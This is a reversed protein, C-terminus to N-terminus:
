PNWTKRQIIDRITRKSVGYQRALQYAGNRFPIYSSRIDCVDDPSLKAKPNRSGARQGRWRHLRGRDKCDRSNEAASGWRLHGPNVCPPNDCGHLAMMREPVIGTAIAISLRHALVFNPGIRYRGYGLRSRGGSWEWCDDPDGVNVKRWFKAVIEPDKSAALLFDDRSLAQGIQVVAGGERETYDPM